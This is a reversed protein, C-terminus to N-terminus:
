FGSQTEGGDITAAARWTEYNVTDAVFRVSGDAMLVNLGGSHYSHATYFGHNMWSVSPYEKSNPSMYATFVSNYPAGAIWSICRTADWTDKYAIASPPSDVTWASTLSTSTAGIVTKRLNTKVLDALSVGSHSQADGAVSESMAMTNSTGDNIAAIGYCSMYHFLGGTRFTKVGGIASSESIRFVNDGNCLVYNGPATPCSEPNTDAADTYRCYRDWSVLKGAMPDSPCQMMPIHLQVIDHVHFRFYMTKGKDGGEFLEQRYDIRDHLQPLELYPALRAQVSYMSSTLTSDTGLAPANGDNGIGPFCDFTAHYNHLGLGFQKLNNTCQMRRAAERAAQVAPLLLAILVGIIAIVVLLEVLTFGARRRPGLLARLLTPRSLLSM